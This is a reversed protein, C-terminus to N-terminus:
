GELSEATSIVGRRDMYMFNVKYIRGMKTYAETSEVTYGYENLLWIAELFGM